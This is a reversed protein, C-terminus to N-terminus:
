NKPKLEFVILNKLTFKDSGGLITKKDSGRYEFWRGLHSSCYNQYPEDSIVLDGDGLVIQKKDNKDREIRFSNRSKTFKKSKSGYNNSGSSESKTRWNVTEAESGSCDSNLDPYYIDEKTLSFLFTDRLDIEQQSDDRFSIKAGFVTDESSKCLILLDLANQIKKEFKSISFKHSANMRYVTSFENNKLIHKNLCGIETKKANFRNTKLRIDIQDITFYTNAMRNNIPTVSISTTKKNLKKPVTKEEPKPNKESGESKSM